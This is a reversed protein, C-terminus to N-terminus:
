VMLGRFDLDEDGRTYLSHRSCNSEAGEFTHMESWREPRARGITHACVYLAALGNTCLYFARAYM